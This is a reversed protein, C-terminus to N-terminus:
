KEVKIGLKNIEYFLCEEYSSELLGPGLTSHVKFASDLIEHTIDNIEM